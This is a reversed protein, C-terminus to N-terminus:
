GVVRWLRFPSDKSLPVPALWAPVRGKLLQVYFGNPAEAQYITAEAIGPCLLLMTAHHRAIIAHAEEPPGRFAHQVDLIADGNRHYPGAIASHHTMTILRPGFDVLTFMTQPPIAEIERLAPATFCWGSHNPPAAPSASALKAKPKAPSIAAAIAPVGQLAFYMWLGSVLLFGAIVGFVRVPFRRDNALRPLFAWGLATAGPVGLLQASPGFRTQWILMVFAFTGFVTVPAWKVALATGRARWIAFWGGILGAAPLASTTTWPTAM